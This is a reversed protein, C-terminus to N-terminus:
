SSSQHEIFSVLTQGYKKVKEPLQQAIDVKASHEVILIGNGALMEQALKIDTLLQTLSIRYPADMFILDFYKKKGFTKLFQEVKRRLVMSYEQFGLKAINSKITKIAQISSDVFVAEKAKRSLAELGLAGSGAFLDLVKANVVKDGLVSFIAERVKDSTPRTGLGKPSKIIRGKVSGAIIRM